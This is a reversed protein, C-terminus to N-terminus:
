FMNRHFMSPSKADLELFHIFTCLACSARLCAEQAEQFYQFGLDKLPELIHDDYTTVSVVGLLIARLIISAGQLITCLLYKSNRSPM